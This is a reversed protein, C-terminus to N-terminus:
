RLAWDSPRQTVWRAQQTALSQQLGKNQRELESLRATLESLQSDRNALLTVTARRQNEAERQQQALHVLSAQLEAVRQDKAGLEERLNVIEMQLSEAFQTLDEHSVLGSDRSHHPPPSVVPPKMERLAAGFQPPSSDRGTSGGGALGDVKNNKNTRNTDLTRSYNPFTKLLAQM